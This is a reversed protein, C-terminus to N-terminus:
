EESNDGWIIFIIMEVANQMVDRPNASTVPETLFQRLAQKKTDTIPKIALKIVSPM